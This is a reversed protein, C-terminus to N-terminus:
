HADTARQQLTRLTEPSIEDSVEEEVSRIGAIRSVGAHDGRWLLIVVRLLLVVMVFMFLLFGAVWMGQPIVLPTRLQTSAMSGMMASNLTMQLAFWTVFSMFVGMAILGFLDLWVTWRAPLRMYLADIRINARRLLSFSLGWSTSIALAYGALEDSGHLSVNMLKRLVIDLTIYAAVAFLLAVSGWTAARSVREALRYIKEM